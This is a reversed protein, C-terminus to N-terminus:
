VLDRFAYSTLPIALHRNETQYFHHCVCPPKGHRGPNQQPIIEITRSQPTQRPLRAIGTLGPTEQRQGLNVAAARARVRRPDAADPHLDHAVPNHPEVRLARIPQHRCPAPRARMRLAPWRWASASTTSAPGIGATWPTTRQRSISRACHSDSSNRTAIESCVSLRSSRRM